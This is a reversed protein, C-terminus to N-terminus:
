WEPALHLDKAKTYYVPGGSDSTLSSNSQSQFCGHCTCMCTCVYMYVTLWLNEAQM